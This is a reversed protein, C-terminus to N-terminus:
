TSRHHRAQTLCDAAAPGVDLLRTENTPRARRCAGRPGCVTEYRRFRADLPVGFVDEDGAALHVLDGVLLVGGLRGVGSM